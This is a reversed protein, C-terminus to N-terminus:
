KTSHSRASCAAESSRSRDPRARSRAAKVKSRHALRERLRASNKLKVAAAARVKAILEPAFEEIRLSVAGAPKAVFDVAGLRLAALTEDAGDATLSSVMVVPCPREIMIRDLCELGGMKPMQVDLTVVSPRFSELRELAELGDRAFQVEFGPEKSLVAGFLKRVLASDDVVLVKIM